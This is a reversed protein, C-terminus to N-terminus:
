GLYHLLTNRHYSEKTYWCCRFDKCSRQQYDWIWLKWSPKHIRLSALRCREVKLWQLFIALEWWCEFKSRWIHLGMNKTVKQLLVSYFYHLCSCFGYAVNPISPWSKDSLYFPRIKGEFNHRFHIALLKPFNRLQQTVLIRLFSLLCCGM